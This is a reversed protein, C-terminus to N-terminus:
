DDVERGRLHPKGSFQLFSKDAPCGTKQVTRQFAESEPGYFNHFQHFKEATFAPFKTSDYVYVKGSHLTDGEGGTGEVLEAASDHARVQAILASHMGGPLGIVSRYGPGVNVADQRNGNACNAWYTAVFAPFSSKPVIMSVVEAHGWLTYDPEGNPTIPYYCVKCSKDVDFGGAYAARSTVQTTNRSLASQETAVFTRQLAWFCGCGFYVAVETSDTKPIAKTICRESSPQDSGQVIGYCFSFCLVLAFVHYCVNSPM